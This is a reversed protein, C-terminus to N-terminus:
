CFGDHFHFIKIGLLPNSCGCQAGEQNAGSEEKTEEFQNSRRDSTDNCTLM